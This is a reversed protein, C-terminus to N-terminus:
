KCPEQIEVQILLSDNLLYKRSNLKEHTIFKPFGCALNEKEKPRAFHASSREPNILKIVNEREDEDEQQDILTLQVKKKTECGMMVYPCSIMTHPCEDRTHSLMLERPISLGCSNPCTVPYKLCTGIHDRQNRLEGTWQCDDCPCKVAFFLIQREVAKDAFVDPKDRDLVDRDVPCTSPQGDNELRRFHEELCGKCFRHGCKAQLPDGLPLHCIECLYDEEVRELFDEDYGTPNENGLTEAM